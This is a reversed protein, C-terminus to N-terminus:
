EGGFLKPLLVVSTSRDAGSRVILLSSFVANSHVGAQSLLTTSLAFAKSSWPEPKFGSKSSFTLTHVKPCTVQGGRAETEEDTFRRYYCKDQLSPLLIFHSFVCFFLFM